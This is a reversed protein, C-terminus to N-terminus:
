QEQFNLRKARDFEQKLDKSISFYSKKEPNSSHKLAAKAEQKQIYLDELQNSWCSKQARPPYSKTSLSSKAANTILDWLSSAAKYM